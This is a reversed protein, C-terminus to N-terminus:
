WACEDSHECWDCEDSGPSYVGGCPLYDGDEADLDDGLPEVDDGSALDWLSLQGAAMAKTTTRTEPTAAMYERREGSTYDTVSIYPAHREWLFRTARYM